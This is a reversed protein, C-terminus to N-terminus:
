PTAHSASGRGGADDAQNGNLSALHEILGDLGRDHIERAFSTRHTAVLSVGDVSIDYVLWEGGSRHMRFGLHVPPGGPREIEAAVEARGSGPTGRAPSITIKNDHYDRISRIYTNLLLQRFEQVFRERQESSATRWYKGLAWQAAARFDIHPLVYRDVLERVRDVDKLQDPNERIEALIRDTVDHLMDAPGPNDQAATAVPACLALWLLV